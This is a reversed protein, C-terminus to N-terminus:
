CERARRIEGPGRPWRARRRRQRRRRRRTASRSQSVCAIPASARRPSMPPPRGVKPPVETTLAPGSPTPLPVQGRWCRASGSRGRRLGRGRLKARMTQPPPNSLRRSFWPGERTSRTPRSRPPWSIAKTDPRKPITMTRRIQQRGRYCARAARHWGSGTLWDSLNRSPRM